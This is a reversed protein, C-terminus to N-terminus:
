PDSMSLARFGEEITPDEITPDISSTKQVPTPNGRVKDHTDDAPKPRRVKRRRRPGVSTQISREFEGIPLAKGLTAKGTNYDFIIKHEGCLDEFKAFALKGIICEAPIWFKAVWHSDTVFHLRDGQGTYVIGWRDAIVTTPEIDIKMSRLKAADIQYVVHQSGGLENKKHCQGINLARGPDTTLSIYPSKLPITEPKNDPDIYRHDGSIHARFESDLPELFDHDPLGRASWFGLDVDHSTYSTEHCVRYFVTPEGAAPKQSPGASKINTQLIAQNIQKLSDVLVAALHNAATLRARIVAKEIATDPRSLDFEVRRKPLAPLAADSAAQLLHHTGFNIGSVLAENKQLAQRLTKSMECLNSRRENEKDRAEITEQSKEVGAFRRIRRRSCSLDYCDRRHSHSDM